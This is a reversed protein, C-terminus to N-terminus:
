AKRAGDTFNSPSPKGPPKTTFFRGALAPSEFSTPEIGRDPLDAVPHFPQGNWYDQRSFEMSLPAQCAVTRPDCLTLCLWCAHMQAPSIGLTTQTTKIFTSSCHSCRWLWFIDRNASSSSIKTIFIRMGKRSFFNMLNNESEFNLIALSWCFSLM